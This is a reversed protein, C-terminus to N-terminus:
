FQKAFSETLKTYQTLFHRVEIEGPFDHEDGAARAADALIQNRREAFAARRANDIVDSVRLPLVFGTRFIDRFLQLVREEDLAVHRLWLLGLRHHFLYLISM